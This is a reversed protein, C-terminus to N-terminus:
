ATGRRLWVRALAGTVVVLATVALLVPLRGPTEHDAMAAQIGADPTTLAPTRAADANGPGAGEPPAQPPVAAAPPGITAESASFLDAQGLDPTYGTHLFNTTDPGTEPALEGPGNEPAEPAPEPSPSPSPPPDGPETPEPAAPEDGPLAQLLTGALENVTAKGTDCIEGATSIVLEAKSIGLDALAQKVPLSLLTDSDQSLGIDLVGPQGLLAGADLILPTGDADRLTADCSGVVVPSDATDDTGEAIATGPSALVVAAALLGTTAGLRAAYQRSATEM